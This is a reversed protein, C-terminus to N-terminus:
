PSLPCQVVVTTNVRRKSVESLGGSCADFPATELLLFFERFRVQIACRENVMDHLELSYSRLAICRRNSGDSHPNPFCHTWQM